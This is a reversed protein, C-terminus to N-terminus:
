PSKPSPRGWFGAPAAVAAAALYALAPYVQVSMRAAPFTLAYAVNLLLIWLILTWEFVDSRRDAQMRVRTRRRLLRYGGLVALLAVPLNALMYHRTRARTQGGIWFRGVGTITRRLYDGPSSKIKEVAATALRRELVRVEGPRLQGYWDKFIAAEPTGAVAGRLVQYEARRTESWTEGVGPRHHAEGVWWNYAALSHLLVPRKELLSSRLSWLGFPALALAAVLIWTPIRLARADPPRHIERRISRAFFSSFSLAPVIAMPLLHVTTRTLLAWSLLFTGAGIRWWCKQERLLGSFLLYVAAFGVAASFEDGMVRTSIFVPLPHCGAITGGLLAGLAGFRRWAISAVLMASFAGPLASWFGLFPESKSLLMGAALWLAFGPGRVTTPSVGAPSFGFPGGDVISQALVPYFDPFSGTNSAELWWPVVVFACVARVALALVGVILVVQRRELLPFCGFSFRSERTM